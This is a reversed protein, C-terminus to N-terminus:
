AYNNKRKIVSTMKDYIAQLAWSFFAILVVCWLFIMYSAKRTMNNLDVKEAVRYIIFHHVLFCAYSYKSIVQFINRASDLRIYNAIFVLVLFSSIGVYFTQINNPIFMPKVIANVVLIGIAIVLARWDVKKIYKIFIMGFMFEPIRAFVEISKGYVLTSILGLVCAIAFVIWPNKQVLIRMIPFLLYMMIIVAIFWEGILCFSQVGFNGMYSDIGLITLIFYRKPVGPAIGGATRYRYVAALFYALWFMPYIGLLRKKYFKPLEIKNDYVYMLSAGSIIFFLSVGFAGIYINSVQMTIVAKEPAPTVVNYVFLANYHTLIIAITAIARVFDLYFIRNKKVASTDAM